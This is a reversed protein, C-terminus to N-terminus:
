DCMGDILQDRDPEDKLLHQVARVPLLDSADMPIVIPRGTHPSRCKYKSPDNDAIGEYGAEDLVAQIRVIPIM